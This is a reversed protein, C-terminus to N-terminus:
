FFFFFRCEFGVLVNAWTVVTMCFVMYAYFICVFVFNSARDFLSCVLVAGTLSLAKVSMLLNVAASMRHHMGRILFISLLPFLIVVPTYTTLWVVDWVVFWASWQWCSKNYTCWRGSMYMNPLPKLVEVARSKTSRSLCQNFVATCIRNSSLGSQHCAVKILSWGEKLVVKRFGKGEYKWTLSPATAWNTFCTRSGRTALASDVTPASERVTDTCGRHVIMRMLM